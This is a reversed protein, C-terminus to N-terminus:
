LTTAVYDLTVTYTDENVFPITVKYDNGLLDGGQESRTAQTHVPVAVADSLTTFPTTGTERVSLAGIPISDTNGVATAAMTTTQSQVTVAYGALNNTEVTLSVAGTGSVTAGVDGSLTFSETLGTVSISSGVEVNGTTSGGAPIGPEAAAPGAMGAALVLGMAAGFLGGLVLRGNRQKIVQTSPHAVPTDM